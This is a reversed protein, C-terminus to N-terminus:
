KQALCFRTARKFSFQSLVHAACRVHPKLETELVHPMVETGPLSPHSIHKLLLQEVSSIACTGVLLAM